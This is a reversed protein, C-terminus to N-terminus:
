DDALSAFIVILVTQIVKSTYLCGLHVESQQKAPPNMVPLISM